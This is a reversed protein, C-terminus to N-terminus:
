KIKKEADIFEKAITACIVAMPWAANQSSGL